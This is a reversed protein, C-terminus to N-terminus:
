KWTNINAVDVEVYREVKNLADLWFARTDMGSGMNTVQMKQGKSETSEIWKELTVNIYRTRIPVAISVPNKGGTM